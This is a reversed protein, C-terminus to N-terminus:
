ILFRLTHYLLSFINLTIINSIKATNGDLKRMIFMNITLLIFSYAQSRYLISGKIDISLNNRTSRNEYLVIFNNRYKVSQHTHIAILAYKRM